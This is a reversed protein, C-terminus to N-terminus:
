SLTYVDWFIPNKSDGLFCMSAIFDSATGGSLEKAIEVLKPICDKIYNVQKEGLSPYITYTGIYADDPFRDKKKSEVLKKKREEEYVSPSVLFKGDKSIELQPYQIEFSEHLSGHRNLDIATFGPGVAEVVVTDGIKQINLSWFNKFIGGEGSGIFVEYGEDFFAEAQQILGDSLVANIISPSFNEKGDTRIMFTTPKEKEVFGEIQKRLSEKKLVQFPVVPLNHKKLSILSALKSM